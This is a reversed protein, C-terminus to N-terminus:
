VVPLAEPGFNYVTGPFVIRAGAAKAGAVASELMPLQLGKWNRYGAPNAAHVVLGVGSAAAIVDAQNMADGKRWDVRGMWAFRRGAEVPNRHLARVTWGAAVLARATESGIGGTAGIILATRNMVNRRPPRRLGDRRLLLHRRDGGFSIACILISAICKRI